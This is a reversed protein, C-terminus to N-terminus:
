PLLETREITYFEDKESMVNFYAETIEFDSMEDGGKIGADSEAWQRAFKAAEAIAGEYSRHATTNTGHKHDITLVHVFEPHQTM